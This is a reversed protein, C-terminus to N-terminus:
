DGSDTDWGVVQGSRFYSSAFHLAMSLEVCMRQERTFSVDPSSVMPNQVYTSHVYQREDTNMIILKYKNVSNTRGSEQDGIFTPDRQDYLKQSGKNGKVM